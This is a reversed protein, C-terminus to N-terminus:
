LYVGEKLLELVQALEEDTGKFQNPVVQECETYGTFDKVKGSINSPYGVFHKYDKALSQNPYEILVFPKKVGLVGAPGTVSGSHTVYQKAGMVANVTGSVTSAVRSAKVSRTELGTHQSATRANEIAIDAIQSMRERMAPAGKVREIASFATGANAAAELSRSAANAMGVQMPGLGGSVAGMGGTIATGVASVAASYVRSWDNGSLPVPVACEGTYQYIYSGDVSILAVFHGSLLDIRYKVGLTTGMVEDTNLSVTGIFPLFLQIKTYPSYDLYTGSYPEIKINGFDYTYWQSVCPPMQISTLFNGINVARTDGVSPVCPVIHFAVVYSIPNTFLKQLNEIFDNLHTWLYEGLDHVQMLSPRFLSIMGSGQASITPLSPEPIIDTTDDFNGTPDQSGSTGGDDMEDIPVGTVQVIVGTYGVPTDPDDPDVYEPPYRGNLAKWAEQRTDFIHFVSDLYSLFIPNLEASALSSLPSYSSQEISEQVVSIVGDIETLFEVYATTNKLDSPYAYLLSYGNDKKFASMRAGSNGTNYFHNHQVAKLETNTSTLTGISVGKEWKEELTDDGYSFPIIIYNYVSVGVKM